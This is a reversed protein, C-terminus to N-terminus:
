PLSVINTDRCKPALGVGFVPDMNLFGFLHVREAGGPLLQAEISPFCDGEYIARVSKESLRAVRLSGDFSPRMLFTPLPGAYFRTDAHVVSWSLKVELSGDTVRSLSFYNTTQFLIQNPLDPGTENFSIPFAPFSQGDASHTPNVQVRGFGTEFDIRAFFRSQNAPIAGSSLRRNDGKYIGILIPWWTIPPFPPIIFKSEAEKIFGAVELVGLEEFGQIGEGPVFFKYISRDDARLGLPDQMQIPDNAAYAYQNSVTTTGPVGALADVTTFRGLSPDIDRYRLYVHTGAHLEGRYGFGLDNPDSQSEGFPDYGGSVALPGDITDGLVSYDYGEVTGGTAAFSRNPGYVLHTTTTGDDVSLIQPVTLTRDWTFEYMEVTTDPHNITVSVLLGDGDHVRSMTTVDGPGGAPLDTECSLKTPEDECADTGDEGHIHDIDDGGDLTDDGYSGRITDEGSGGYVTDDGLGGYITDAGAGGFITDNDDFGYILDDGDGGVIIDDGSDGRLTDNGDGGCIIDNGGLGRISDIGGLGFIVDDGATGMIQDNGATGVITPTVTDCISETVGPAAIEEEIVLGRADYTYSTVTGDGAALEVLRGAADYTYTNLDSDSVLQNADDVVFAIGDKSVLNGVEDYAYSHSGSPGTAATLQGAQDYGFTWAEGGTTTTIRGSSDYTLNTTVSNQTYSTLQGNTYAYARTTGDSVTETLLRGDDDYTYVASGGASRTVGLLRGNDDYTYAVTSSDPYTLLTRRRADDYEYALTDGNPYTVSTLNGTDDYGYTTTGTSDVMQTRRGAADYSYTITSSDSFEQKVLQGAADYTSTVTRGSADTAIDVRGDADYTITSTRNLADTVSTLQDDLAYTSTQTRNLADTVQTRNGRGDYDFTTTEGLPDTVSLLDRDDNDFLSTGQGDLQVGTLDGRGNYTFTTTVGAADTQTLPRGADDFTTAALLGEPSEVQTVRGDGDYTYTTVGAEPDTVAAVRGASDYTYTTVGGEPNTTTAVRGGPTYTTTTVGGEPDTLTSTRGLADYTYTTVGGAPDTTTVLRGSSDYTNTTTRNLPDTTTLIRGATDRTTTTTDSTPDTTSAQNGDADYGYGTTRSLPDTVSALRGLDAWTNTSTAGGPRNTTVLQDFDDYTFSTTDNRSDTTSALRGSSDYTNTTTDNEPDTITLLRGANNYTYTTVGAEPDTSTLLRGANDYTYTTSNGLPTTTSALRGASDYTYTTTENAGNTESALRRQSDYTYTTEVGDADEVSTVLGDVVTYTTTNNLDDTVTAPVRETGDYTYTTTAGWPQTVSTLRNESDYTYEIEGGTTTESTLANGNGDFTQTLTEGLRSTAGTLEGDASRTINVEENYPDEIRILIDSSNYEHILVEGSPQSTMTTELGQYAFTVSQGGPFSQEVVRSQTDYTNTVIDVLEPDTITELLDETNYTYTTVGSDPNTFTDLLDGTYGYGVARGDSSSVASIHGSGDYTITLTYGANSSIQTPGNAGQTLTVVQGDWNSLEVLEGSANFDWVSGDFMEASFSDDGDDVLEGYFEIPRDYGGSGDPVFQVIRGDGLVMSVVGNGDVSDIRIDHAHTWGLGFGGSSPDQSNYFRVFDMGYISNPFELDVETQIFNGTLTNVPDSGYGSTAREGLQDLELPLDSTFSLRHSVIADGGAPLSLNWSIGAGNDIFEDCLCTDNFPGHSGIVSWVQWYGAEYYNNGVFPDGGIPVWQQIRGLPDNNPNGSCAVSTGEVAGYGWDTGALYCDGARYLIIDQSSSGSNSVTIDTRYSTEGVVYSDVQTISLVTIGVNVVTTVQYPDSDTGSGTVASQSIPTFPTYDGLNGTATSGNSVFDPAYLVDGFVLLTGCDGPITSPPYFQLLDDYVHRVQCSLDEGLYINSLPGSSSITQFSVAAVGVEAVGVEGSPPRRQDGKGPILDPRAGESKAEEGGASSSTEESSGAEDSFEVQEEEQEKQEPDGADVETTNTTTASEQALAQPFPVVSAVLLALV